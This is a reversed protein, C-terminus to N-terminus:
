PHCSFGGCSADACCLCADDGRTPDYGCCAYPMGYPTCQSICDNIRLVGSADCWWAQTRNVCDQDNVFDCSAGNTYCVGNILYEGAGCSTTEIICGSSAVAGLLAIGVLLAKM